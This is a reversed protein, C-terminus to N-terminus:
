LNVEKSFQRVKVYMMFLMLLIVLSLGAPTNVSSWTRDLLVIMHEKVGWYRNQPNNNGRPQPNNQRLPSQPSSGPSSLASFPSEPGDQRTKLDERAGDMRKLAAAADFSRVAQLVQLSSIKDLDAQSNGRGEQNRRVQELLADGEGEGEDGAEEDFFSHQVKGINLGAVIRQPMIASFTSTILDQSETNDEEEDIDRRRMEVQPSHVTSENFLLGMAGGEIGGVNVVAGSVKQSEATSAPATTTSPGFGFFDLEKSTKQKNKKKNRKKEQKQRQKQDEQEKIADEQETSTVAEDKWQKVPTWDWDSQQDTQTVSAVPQEIDVVVPEPEDYHDVIEEEQPLADEDKDSGLEDEAMQDLNFMEQLAPAASADVLKGAEETISTLGDAAASLWDTLEGATAM